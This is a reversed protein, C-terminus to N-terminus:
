QPSRGLYKGRSIKPKKKTVWSAEKDEWMKNEIFSWPEVPREHDCIKYYRPIKEIILNIIEKGHESVASKLATIFKGKKTKKNDPVLAWIKEILETEDINLPETKDAESFYGDLVKKDDNIKNDIVTDIVPVSLMDTDFSVKDKSVRNKSVRDSLTYLTSKLKEKKVRERETKPEIKDITEKFTDIYREFFKGSLFSYSLNECQNLASLHCTRNNGQKELMNAVLVIENDFDYLVKDGFEGGELLSTIRKRDISTERSITDLGIKYFGSVNAMDNTIFYVFLLKGDAPLKRIIDDNWIDVTISRYTPM